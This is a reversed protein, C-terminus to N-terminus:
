AGGDSRTGPVDPSAKGGAPTADHDLGPSYHEATAPGGAPWSEQSADTSESSATASSANSAGAHSSSLQHAAIRSRLEAVEQKLADFEKRPVFDLKERADGMADQAKKMTSRVAEKARDPSIDGRERMEEITEEIAERLASLIGMGAKLGEKIGDKSKQEESM